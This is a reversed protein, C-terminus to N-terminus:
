LASSMNNHLLKSNYWAIEIGYPGTLKLREFNGKYWPNHKADFRVMGTNELSRLLKASLRFQDISKGGDLHIEMGLQRVQSLVGVELM